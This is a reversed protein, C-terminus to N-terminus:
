ILNNLLISQIKLLLCRFLLRASFPQFKHIWVTLEALFCRTLHKSPLQLPEVPPFTGNALCTLFFFFYVFFSLLRFVLLLCDNLSLSHFILSISTLTFHSFFLWFALCVFRMVAGFCWCCVQQTCRDETQSYTNTHGKFGVFCNTNAHSDAILMVKASQVWSCLCVTSSLDLLRFSEGVFVSNTCRSFNAFVLYLPQGYRLHQDILDPWVILCLVIALLWWNRAGDQSSGKDLTAMGVLLRNALLHTVVIIAVTQSCVGSWHKSQWQGCCNGIHVSLIPPM